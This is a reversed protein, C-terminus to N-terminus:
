FFFLPARGGVEWMAAASFQLKYTKVSNESFDCAGSKGWGATIDSELQVEAELTAADIPTEGSFYFDILERLIAFM